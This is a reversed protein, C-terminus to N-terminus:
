GLKIENLYYILSELHSQFLMMVVKTILTAYTLKDLTQVHSQQLQMCM